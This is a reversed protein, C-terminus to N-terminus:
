PGILGMATGSFDKFYGFCGMGPIRMPEGMRKGGATEIDTLTAGVDTAYIYAVAPMAPTHSQFVGGVSAGPDFAMYHPMTALAGWGFLESFFRATEPGDAAYMELSCIAGAPPKPNSGLPMPMRPIDGPAMAETLGYITGSLDRFRALRGVMPVIWAAREVTGGAAVVRALAAEVDPVGIYPVVGPFGDPVNSRLSVTPGGQAVVATLEASMPHTQWGFVKSYFAASGALNPASLVVMLIPHKGNGAPVIPMEDSM